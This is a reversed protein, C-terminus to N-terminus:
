SAPPSVPATLAAGGALAEDKPPFTLLRMEVLDVIGRFPDKVHPPGLGLPEQREELKRLFADLETWYAQEREIFQALDLIM